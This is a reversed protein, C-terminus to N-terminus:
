LKHTSLHAHQRAPDIIAFFDIQQLDGVMACTKCRALTSVVNHTSRSRAPRPPVWRWKTSCAHVFRMEPSPLGQFSMLDSARIYTINFMKILRYCWKQSQSKKTEQACKGCQEHIEKGRATVEWVTSPGGVGKVPMSGIKCGGASFAPVGRNSNKTMKPKKAGQYLLLLSMKQSFKLFINAITSGARGSSFPFTTWIHWRFQESEICLQLWRFSWNRNRARHKVVRHTSWWLSYVVLLFSVIAYSWPPSSPLPQSLALTSLTASM